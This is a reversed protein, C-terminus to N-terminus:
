RMVGGTPCSAAATRRWLAYQLEQRLVIRIDMARQVVVVYALTLPFLLFM